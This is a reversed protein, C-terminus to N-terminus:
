GQSGSMHFTVMGALEGKDDSIIAIKLSLSITNLNMRESRSENQENWHIEYQDAGVYSQSHHDEIKCNPVIKQFDNPSLAMLVKKLYSEDWNLKDLNNYVRRHNFIEIDKESILRKFNELDYSAM